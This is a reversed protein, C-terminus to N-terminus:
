APRGGFHRRLREHRHRFLGQFMGRQGPMPLRPEFLVRDTLLTGEPHSELTREHEWLKMSSMRSRELFGKGPEFRVFTLDDFDIPLVGFLLLWGRFVPKGLTIHQPEMRDFGKPGTMRFWPALEANVGSFTSVRDWVKGPPATLLSAVTFTNSTSM